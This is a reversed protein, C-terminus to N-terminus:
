SSLGDNKKLPHQHPQLRSKAPLFREDMHPHQQRNDVISYAVMIVPLPPPLPSNDKSKIGGHCYCSIDLYGQFKVAFDCCPWLVNSDSPQRTTLVRNNMAPQLPKGRSIATFKLGAIM